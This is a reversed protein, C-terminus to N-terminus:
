KIENVPPRWAPFNRLNLSYLLHSNKRILEPQNNQLDVSFKPSKSKAPLKKTDSTVETSSLKLPNNESDVFYYTKAKSQYFKYPNVYSPCKNLKPTFSPKLTSNLKLIKNQKEIRLSYLKDFVNCSSQRKLKAISDSTSDIKPKFVLDDGDGEDEKVTKKLYEVKAETKQLWLKNSELWKNFDGRNFSKSRKFKFNEEEKELMLNHRLNEINHQKELATEKYRQYLPIRNQCIKKSNYDIQPKRIKDINEIRKKNKLIEIKKDLIIQKSKNKEYFSKVTPSKSLKNKQDQEVFSYELITRRPTEDLISKEYNNQFKKRKEDMQIMKKEIKDLSIKRIEPKLNERFFSISEKLYPHSISQPKRDNNTAM